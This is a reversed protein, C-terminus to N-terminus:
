VPVVKLTAEVSPGEVMPQRFQPPQAAYKVNYADTVAQNKIENVEEFAVEREIDGATFAARGTERVRRYWRASRGHASRVFVESGDTVAWMTVPQLPTGDGALPAVQVEEIEGIARVEEPTWDSM